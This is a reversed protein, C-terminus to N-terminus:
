LAKHTGDKGGHLRQTRQTRVKQKRPKNVEVVKALWSPEIHFKGDSQKSVRQVIWQARDRGTRRHPPLNEWEEAVQNVLSIKRRRESTTYFNRCAKSCFRDRGRIQDLWKGCRVCNVSRRQSFNQDIHISLCLAALPSTADAAVTPVGDANWYLYAALRESVGTGRLALGLLGPDLRPANVKRLFTISPEKLRPTKNELLIIERRTKDTETQEVLYEKAAKIAERFQRENLRMMWAFVDRVNSLSRRIEATVFEPRWGLNGGVMREVDRATFYVANPIELLARPVYGASGLWECISAADDFDLNLLGTRIARWNPTGLSRLKTQEAAPILSESARSGDEKGGESLVTPWLEVRVFVRVNPITLLSSETFSHQVHTHM